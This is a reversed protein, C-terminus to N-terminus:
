ETRPASLRHAFCLTEDPFKVEQDNQKKGDTLSEAEEIGVGIDVKVKLDECGKIGGKLDNIDEIDQLDDQVDDLEQRQRQENVTFSEEGDQYPLGEKAELHNEIQRAVGVLHLDKEVKPM